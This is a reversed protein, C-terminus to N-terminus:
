WMSTESNTQPSIYGYGVTSMTQFSLGFADSFIPVFPNGGVSICDPQATGVAYVIIAFIFILVMYFVVLTLIVAFFSARFTWSLYRSVSNATAQNEKKWWSKAKMTVCQSRIRYQPEGKIIKREEDGAEPEEKKKSNVSARLKSWTSRAQQEDADVAAVSKTRTTAQGTTIDVRSSGIKELGPRRSSVPACVYSKTRTTAQGTAIDVRSSGTKELGLPSSSVPADANIQPERTGPSFTVAKTLDATESDDM